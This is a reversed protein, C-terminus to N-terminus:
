NVLMMPAFWMGLAFGSRLGGVSVVTLHGDLILMPAPFIETCFRVGGEALNTGISRTGGHGATAARGAATDEHPPKSFERLARVDIVVAAFGAGVNPIYGFVIWVRSRMM